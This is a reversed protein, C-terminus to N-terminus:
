EIQEILSFTPLMLSIAFVAVVAGVLIVLVPEIISSVNRTANDVETEYFDALDKLMAGSTGTEEGVKVMQLLLVPFISGGEELSVNLAIGKRVEAAAQLIAKKYYYNSVSSGVIELARVIPVGGEILSSLSRAFRASNIQIVLNRLVPTKILLFAITKKGTTSKLFYDGIVVAGLLAAFIWVYYTTLFNSFNILFKTLFPLDANMERFVSAVRPIVVNMMLIGEAFVVTMVLSPYIMAGKVKNKLEYEKKLQKALIDLSEELRGMTEGIEVMNLYLTSFVKPYRSLAKYLSLGKKVEDVTKSLVEAFYGNRAQKALVSLAEPLNIGGRIMVSLHQSFLVLDITPVRKFLGALTFGRKREQHLILKVPLLGEKKLSWAVEKEDRGEWLGTLREGKQDIVEYDFFAM